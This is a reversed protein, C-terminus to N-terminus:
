VDLSSLARLPVHLLQSLLRHHTPRRHSWDAGGPSGRPTWVQVCCAGGCINRLFFFLRHQEGCSVTFCKQEVFRTGTATTDRVQRFLLGVARGHVSRGHLGVTVDGDAM